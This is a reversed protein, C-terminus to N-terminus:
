LWHRLLPAELVSGFRVQRELSRGIVSKKGAAGGGARTRSQIFGFGAVHPYVLVVDEVHLLRLKRRGLGRQPPSSITFTAWRFKAPEDAVEFPVLLAEPSAIFRM